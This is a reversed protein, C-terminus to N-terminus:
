NGGIELASTTPLSHWVRVGGELQNKAVATIYRPFSSDILVDRVQVYDYHARAHVKAKTFEEDCSEGFQHLFRDLNQIDSNSPRQRLIAFDNGVYNGINPATPFMIEPSSIGVAVDYSYKSSMMNGIVNMGAVGAAAAGSLTGGAEAVGAANVAGNGIASGGLGVVSRHTNKDLLNTGDPMNSGIPLTTWQSGQVTGLLVDSTNGRISNFRAYPHGSIYPDAFIRVDFDRGIQSLIFDQRDNSSMGIISVNQWLYMAKYNEVTIGPIEANIDPSVVKNVGTLSDIRFSSPFENIYENPVTYAGLIASEVGLSRYLNVMKSVDDEGVSVDTNYLASIPQWFKGSFGSIKFTTALPTRPLIPVEVGKGQGLDSDVFKKAEATFHTPDLDLTSYIMGIGTSGTVGAVNSEWDEILQHMPKIPEDLNLKVCRDKDQIDSMPYTRRTMWGKIGVSSGNSLANTTTLADLQLKFECTQQAQMKYGTVFYCYVGGDKTLIAYDVNRADSDITRCIISDIDNAQRLWLASTTISKASKATAISDPINTGDFGSNVLLDVTVNAGQAM